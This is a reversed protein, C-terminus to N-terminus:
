PGARRSSRAGPSKSKGPHTKTPQGKSPKGHVSSTSVRTSASSPVAKPHGSSAGPSRSASSRATSSTATRGTSPPSSGAHSGPHPGSSRPAGPVSSSHVAPRRAHQGPLHGTAGAVVTGGVAAAVLSASVIKTTLTAAAARALIRGSRRPTPTAEGQRLVQLPVEAGRVEHARGPAAAADILDSLLDRDGGDRPPEPSRPGTM